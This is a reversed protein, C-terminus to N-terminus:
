NKHLYHLSGLSVSTPVLSEPKLLREVAANNVRKNKEYILARASSVRSRRQADDLRRLTSRQKRDQPMGLNQIRNKPIRCRPCPCIGKDRVSALLIRSFCKTHARDVKTEPKSKLTTPQIRLFVLTFGADSEM